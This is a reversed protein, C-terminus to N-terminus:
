GIGRILEKIEEPIEESRDQGAVYEAENMNGDVIAIVKTCYAWPNEPRAKLCAELTYEIARQNRSLKKQITLWAYVKPWTKYLREHIEM